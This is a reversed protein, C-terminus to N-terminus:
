ARLEGNGALLPSASAFMLTSESASCSRESAATNPRFEQLRPDRASFIGRTENVTEEREITGGAQTVANHPNQHTFREM